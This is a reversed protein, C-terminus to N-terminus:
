LKLAGGMLGAMFQRMGVSFLAFLPLAGITYGAMLPGIYTVYRTQFAVLGVVLTKLSDDTLVLLPWVYDGWIGLVTVIAIATISPRVLPLAVRLFVQLDSAGDIRAAEFLEEPLSAFFGRLIFIALLQGGAIYPLIVGLYNDILHFSRILVFQPVLMLIAPIMMMSILSYYFIERGPFRLRAFAFGALTGVIVVGITSACTVVISNLMYHWVVPFAAGYNEVHFPVTPAWFDLAFQSNDKLSTQIMFYFPFAMLIALVVLVALVGTQQVTRARM